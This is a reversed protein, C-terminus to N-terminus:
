RLYRFITEVGSAVLDAPDPPGQNGAAYHAASNREHALIAEAVVDHPQVTRAKDAAGYAALAQEVAGPDLVSIPAQCFSCVTDHALDIPAGCGSCRITPMRAALAIREVASLTRIFGKEIMFQTFPTFRGHEAPCFYYVIHGGKTIDQRYVLHEVCRACKLTSGLPRAQEHNEHIAQFLQVVGAPALQVAERADFWIGQCNWCVDLTEEGGYNKPYARSAMPGLCSPCRLQEEM